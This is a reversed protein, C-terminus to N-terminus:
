EANREWCDPRPCGDAVWQELEARRWRPDGGGIRIPAPIVGQSLKGYFSTKKLGLLAAAEAARLLLPQPPQVDATAAPAANKM